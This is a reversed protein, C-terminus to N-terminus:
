WKPISILEERPLQNYSSVGGGSLRLGAKIAYTVGNDGVYKYYQQQDGCNYMCMGLDTLKGRIINGKDIVWYNGASNSYYVVNCESYCDGSPLKIKLPINAPVTHFNRCIFSIEETISYVLVADADALDLVKFEENSYTYGNKTIVLQGSTNRQWRAPDNYSHFQNPRSQGVSIHCFFLSCLATFIRLNM